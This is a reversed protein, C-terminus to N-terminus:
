GYAENGRKAQHREGAKRCAALLRTLRRRGVHHRRDRRRRSGVSRGLDDDASVDIVDLREVELRVIIDDIEIDPKTPSRRVEMGGLRHFEHVAIGRAVIDALFEVVLRLFHRVAAEIEMM